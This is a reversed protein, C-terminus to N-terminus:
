IFMQLMFAQKQQKLLNLKQEEIHIKKDLINLFSGIKIQEDYTPVTVQINMFDTKNLVRNRGAGGPSANGLNYKFYSTTFFYKYFDKYHDKKFLYTPFRHSVLKRHDTVDAVALAQEWAFTINIIFDGEHVVYLKDMSVSEVNTVLEHFTGRAHSRLGLRMYANTPKDVERLNLKLIDSVLKGEWNPFSNGNANKFQLEQNFIKQMYGKKQEKLLVIKEQQLKIKSNITDFFDSIKIQEEAKSPINVLINKIDNGNISEFTSGQSLKKWERNDRMKSLIHFVYMNEVRISCVGRGICAKYKTIGIEGVPARVSLIIDGVECMKTPKSTYVRPVVEENIIDANGQILITERSDSTYSEGDPSQGMTVKTLENIKKIEWPDNFDKFRLKPANM